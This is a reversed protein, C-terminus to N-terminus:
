IVITKEESYKHKYYARVLVATTIVALRRKLKETEKVQKIIGDVVEGDLYFNSFKM